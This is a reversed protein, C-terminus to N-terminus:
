RRWTLGAVWGTGAWGLLRSLPSPSPNTDALTWPAGSDRGGRQAAGGMRPRRM